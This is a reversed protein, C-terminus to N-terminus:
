EKRNDVSNAINDFFIKLSKAQAENIVFNVEGDMGEVTILSDNPNFYFRTTEAIEYDSLHNFKAPTNIVLLKM